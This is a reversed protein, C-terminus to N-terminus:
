IYLVLVPVDSMLRRLPTDQMRHGSPNPRSCNHTRNAGSKSV